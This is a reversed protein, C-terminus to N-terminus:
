RPVFPAAIRRGALAVLPRTGAVVEDIAPLPSGPRLQLLEVVNRNALHQLLALPLIRLIDLQRPRVLTRVPAALCKRSPNLRRPIYRLDDRLAVVDACDPKHLKKLPLRLRRCIQARRKTDCAPLIERFAVPDSM